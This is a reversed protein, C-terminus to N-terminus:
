KQKGKEEIITPKPEADMEEQMDKKIGHQIKPSQTGGFALHCRSLDEKGLRHNVMMVKATVRQRSATSYDRIDGFPYLVDPDCKNIDNNNEIMKVLLSFLFIPGTATPHCPIFSIRPIVDSNERCTIAQNQGVPSSSPPLPPWRRGHGFDESTTASQAVAASAAAAASPGDGLTMSDDRAV